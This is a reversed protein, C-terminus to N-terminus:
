PIVGEMEQTTQLEKQKRCNETHIKVTLKQDCITKMEISHM